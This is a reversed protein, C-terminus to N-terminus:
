RATRPGMSLKFLIGSVTSAAIAVILAIRSGPVAFWSVIAAVMLPQRSERPSVIVKLRPNAKELEPISSYVYVNIRYHHGRKGDFHRVIRGITLTRGDSEVYGSLSNPIVPYEPPTIKGDDYIACRLSVVTKVERCTEPAIHTDMLCHALRPDVDENPEVEVVVVYVRDRDATFGVSLETGAEIKIPESVPTWRRYFNSMLPYAILHLGLGLQFAVCAIALSFIM